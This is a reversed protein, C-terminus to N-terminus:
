TYAVGESVGGYAAGAALQGWEAATM